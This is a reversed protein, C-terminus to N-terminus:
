ALGARLWGGADIQKEIPMLRPYAFIKQLGRRHVVYAHTGFFSRAARYRPAVSMPLGFNRVASEGANVLAWRYLQDMMDDRMIFAPVEVSSIRKGERRPALQQQQEQQAAASAVLKASRGGSSSRQRHHLQALRRAGSTFAHRHNATRTGAAAGSASAGRIM